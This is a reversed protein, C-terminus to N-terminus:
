VKSMTADYSVFLGLVESSPDIFFGPTVRTKKNSQQSIAFMM